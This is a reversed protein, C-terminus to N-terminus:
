PAIHSVYTFSSQGSATITSLRYYYIVGSTRGTDSFSLGSTNQLTTLGTTFAADTARELKYTVAGDVASWALDIIGTAGDNAEFNAPSAISSSDFACCLGLCSTIDHWNDGSPKTKRQLVTGGVRNGDVRVWYRANRM